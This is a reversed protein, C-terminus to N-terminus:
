KLLNHDMNQRCADCRWKTVAPSTSRALSRTPMPLLIAVEEEEKDDDDDYNDDNDDDDEAAALVLPAIAPSLCSVCQGSKVQLFARVWMKKGRGVWEDGKTVRVGCRAGDRRAM